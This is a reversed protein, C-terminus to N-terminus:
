TANGSEGLATGFIGSGALQKALEPLSKGPNSRDFTVATYLKLPPPLMDPEFGSIYSVFKAKDPKRRNLIDNNFLKLEFDVWPRKFNKPDTGVAVLIKASDLADEIASSFYGNGRSEKYFFAKVHLKRTLFEYVLEAVDIDESSFSIFVDFPGPRAAPVPVQQLKLFRKIIRKTVPCLSYKRREAQYDNIAQVSRVPRIHPFFEDRLTRALDAGQRREANFYFLDPIFESRDFIEENLREVKFLGVPTNVLRDEMMEGDCLIVDEDLHIKAVKDIEIGYDEANINLFCDKVERPEDDGVQVHLCDPGNFWKLPIDLEDFEPLDLQSFRKQLLEQAVAFEPLNIHKYAGSVYIYKKRNRPDVIILEERLEREMTALPDLLEYLNECGGNAINWGIPDIDRYFLCYYEDDGIRLIPLVGGSAYRFAFDRDDIELNSGKDEILFDDLKRQYKQVKERFSPGMLKRIEFKGRNSWIAPSTEDFWVDLRNGKGDRRLSFDSILVELFYKQALHFPSVHESEFWNVM